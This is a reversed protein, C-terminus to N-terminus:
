IKSRTWNCLEYQEYIDPGVFGTVPMKHLCCLESLLVM